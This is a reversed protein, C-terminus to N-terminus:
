NLAIPKDEQLHSPWVCSAKSALWVSRDIISKEDWEELNLVNGLTLLEKAYTKLGGKDGKGNVKIPWAQNKITSNLSQTIITFNGLTKILHTREDADFGGSLPWHNVWKQPMLHELTYSSYKLLQTSLLPDNRLKSELLYLIQLGRYNPQELEMFCRKLDANTPMALNNSVDKQNIYAIVDEVTKVDALILNESFLDSYSKTSKRCIIRRVIYSELYDFIKVREADDKVNKIVYMVFPILTTSDTAIILFNIRELGPESTLSEDLVDPSFSERYIKAYDVLESILYLERNKYYKLIFKKYSTFLGEAKSYEVKEETPVKLVPDHVKIQLFANLFAEVNIQKKRGKLLHKSWFDICEDDKEFAPKWYAEYDGFSEETFLHNKLLEATTLDVGLSNITDFIQQEDDNDDIVIDIVQVNYLVRNTNLQSPDLNECFYNYAEIIHSSGGLTECEQLKMVTEFDARDVHSHLLAYQGDPLVFKRDFWANQGLKMYLVKLFIAITTLRQQGDIVVKYDGGTATGTIKQKLIISGLFYNEKRKGVSIMDDLFREWEEKGWVYSRQYFPVEFVRSGNFLQDITSKGPLM